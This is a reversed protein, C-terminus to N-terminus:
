SVKLSNVHSSARFVSHSSEPCLIGRILPVARSADQSLSHQCSRPGHNPLQAM